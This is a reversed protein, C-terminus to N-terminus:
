VPSTYGEDRAWQVLTTSWPLHSVTCRLEAPWAAGHQRLWKAIDLRNHPGAAALMMKLQAASPAPQAGVLFKIVPLHGFIAALLGIESIDLPCGQEHLWRLTDLHNGRAASSCARSNWPCQETHLYHCTRLDGREAATSMVAASFVGGQQKLYHLLEINGSRAARECITTANWPCGNEHLFRVTELHGGSAASETAHVSWPCGEAALFQCVALHGKRAAGDMTRADYEVGQKKLYLLMAISGSEAAHCAIQDLAWPCGREHLWQLTSLHGRKAAASCVTSDWPREEDHLFQLVRTHAGAAAGRYTAASVTLGCNTVWRLTDVSGVRAALFAIDTYLPCGQMTHLWQVKSVSAAEAAGSMVQYKLELGLKHAAAL